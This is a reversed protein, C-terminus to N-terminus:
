FGGSRLSASPFFIIRSIRAFHLHEMQNDFPLGSIIRGVRRPANASVSYIGREKQNIWGMGMRFNIREVVRSVLM